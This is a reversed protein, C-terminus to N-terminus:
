FADIDVRHDFTNVGANNILIDLRGFAATCAEVAAEAAERDRIDFEVAIAHPLSAAVARAGDGNVDAVVVAAGNGALLRAMASGIAGAAGTIFAVKGGLDTKM